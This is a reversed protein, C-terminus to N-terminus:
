FAWTLSTYGTNARYGQYFSLLGFDEHYDYFQWGANWRLKERLRVSVRALPAQYSLPFTQVPAFVLTTPDTTGAPIAITRGDGVDRTVTYGVYLDVRKSLVFRSILNAAHINSVYLQNSTLPSQADVGAFFVIGSLSDLHLKSYSADLTFWDRPAWSANASYNRAHSSYATFAISNNNYNEKYAAGLTLKGIRYDFRAGLAHYDRDSVPTFPHDAHGVEGELNITMAPLPKIRIGSLGAQLHNEQVYTSGSLPGPVAYDEIDEIRRGSYHYGGYFSLWNKLRYHLM